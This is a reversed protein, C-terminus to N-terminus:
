LLCLILPISFLSLITTVLVISAVLSADRKYKQTLIMTMVASPMAAQLLIINKALGGISFVTVIIFAISFGGIIRFLSALITTKISRLKIGNLKYGLILLALPITIAGFMEIPKFIVAIVSVKFVNFLFGIVIAYILPIKFIEKIDNKHHVIYIGFSCLFLCNIMDYAVAMSLGAAGFAFLAVPYGLYATNGITMPLYLGVKKSKTLKLIIFIIYSFILIVAIAVLSITFFDTLNISSKYISSFILCPLTLYVVLNTMPQVDIKKRKGFIYGVLIILFIPLVTQLIENWIM